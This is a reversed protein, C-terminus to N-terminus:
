VESPTGAGALRLKDLARSVGRRNTLETPRGAPGLALMTLYALGLVVPLFLFFPTGLGDHWSLPMAAVPALQGTQAAAQPAAEAAEPAAVAADEAVLEGGGLDGVGAGGDGVEGLDGGGGGALGADDFGGGGGGLDGSGGAGAAPTGGADFDMGAGGGGAGSSPSTKAALGVGKAKVGDFVVQFSLPEGNEGEAAGVLVVSPSGFFEASKWEAALLTLDFVWIGTKDNRVGPVSAAECDHEPRNKWPNNEGGVWFAETVACALIVAGEANATLSQKKSEKLSLTVADVTSGPKGDLAFEIASIRRPEGTLVTVPLTGEPVDPAPPPPPPAVPNDPPPENISNWWGTQAVEGGKQTGPAPAAAHAAGTALAPGAVLGALTVALLKLTGM